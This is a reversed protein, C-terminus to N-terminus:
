LPRTSVNMDTTNDVPQTHVPQPTRSRQHVQKSVQRSSGLIENSSKKYLSKQILEFTGSLETVGTFVMTYCM